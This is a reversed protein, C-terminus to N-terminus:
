KKGKQWKEFAIRKGKLPRKSLLAVAQAAEEASAFGIAGSGKGKNEYIQTWRCPKFKDVHAKLEERTIGEPLQGVWLTKSTSVRNTKHKAGWITWKRKAGPKTKNTKWAATQLSSGGLLTGAILTTAQNADDESTFGIAGTGQGKYKYVEAWSCPLYMDVHNKLDQFSTGQPLNGVWITKKPSVKNTARKKTWKNKGSGGKGKGKGKGWGGKNWKKQGWSKQGWSPKQQWVM